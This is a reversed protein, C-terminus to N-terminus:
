AGARPHQKEFQTLRYAEFGALGLFLVIGVFFLRPVTQLTFSPHFYLIAPMVLVAIAVSFGVNGWTGISVTHKCNGCLFSRTVGTGSITTKRHALSRTACKCQRTEAM